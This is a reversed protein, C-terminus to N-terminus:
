SGTYYFANAKYSEFSSTFSSLTSYFNFGNLLPSLGAEDDATVNSKVLSFFLQAKM